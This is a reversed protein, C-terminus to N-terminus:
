GHTAEEPHASGYLAEAMAKVLRTSYPSMPLFTRFDLVIIQGKKAATTLSIAPDAMLTAVLQKEQGPEAGAFIWEPDWRIIQEFNVSDYGKLGNEAGVNIGGLKMVIDNFPTETGYSYRGGLGLIRPHPASDPRLAKAQEIERHFRVAEKEAAEDNGTLYGVLHITQEVQDLTQFTTQMRYVPVGTSRALSTWDARGTSSILMLDPDLALVRELDTALVPHFQDVFESVNSVSKLYASESVAVVDQPPVISYLYEDISWYQSIIRHAPRQIKVVFDDSDIAERPYAHNGMRIRSDGDGTTATPLQLGGDPSAYSEVGLALAAVLGLLIIPPLVRAIRSYKFASMEQLV